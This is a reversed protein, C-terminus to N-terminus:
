LAIHVWNCKFYLRLNVSAARSPLTKIDHNTSTPLQSTTNQIYKMHQVHSSVYMTEVCVAKRNRYKLM